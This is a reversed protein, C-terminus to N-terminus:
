GLREQEFFFPGFAIRRFEEDVDRRGDDRDDPAPTATICLACVGNKTTATFRRCSRCQFPLRM